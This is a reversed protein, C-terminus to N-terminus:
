REAGERGTWVKIQSPDHQVSPGYNDVKKFAM